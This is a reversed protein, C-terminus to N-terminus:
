GAPGHRDAILMAEGMMAILMDVHRAPSYGAAGAQRAAEIEAECDVLAALAHRPSAPRRGHLIRALDRDRRYEGLGHRAARVLLRPRRLQGLTTKLDTM